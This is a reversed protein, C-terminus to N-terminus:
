RYWVRTLVAQAWELTPDLAVIAELCRKKDALDDTQAALWARARVQLAVPGLRYRTVLNASATRLRSIVNGSWIDCITCRCCLLWGGALSEGPVTIPEM